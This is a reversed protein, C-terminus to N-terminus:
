TGNSSLDRILWHPRSNNEQYVTSSSSSNNNMSLGPELFYEDLNNRRSCSGSEQVNKSGKKKTCHGIGLTLEVEVDNVEHVIAKLDNQLGIKCPNNRAPLIQFDHGTETPPARTQHWSASFTPNNSLDPHLTKAKRHIILGNKELEQMLKKQLNYLRHLEQVQQKFIEEQILMMKRMSEIKQLEFMRDMSFGFGSEQHGQHHTRLPSVAFYYNQPAKTLLDVWPQLKTRM